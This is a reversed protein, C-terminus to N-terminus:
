SMSLTGGSSCAPLKVDNAVMTKNRFIAHSSPQYHIDINAIQRVAQTFLLQAVGKSRVTLNRRHFYEGVSFCATRTSETENFHRIL